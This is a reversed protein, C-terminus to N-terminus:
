RVTRAPRASVERSFEGIHRPSARDYAAIAFYYLTGNRLGDVLISTRNGIDLPSPGDTADEGFYEGAATGYYLLYGGLDPDPSARWKLEVSGDAAQAIVLSPPPPPDDREYVVRVEDLYPAREGDGSPYFDVALQVWRGRLSLGLPAGNAVPTWSEEEDKWGYPSDGARLFYRLEAGDSGPAGKAEIRLVRANTTGLDFFRTEARGGSAPFRATRPKEVFRRYLRFEDMFGSYGSGLSFYGGTGIVPNYVEGGERGTFTAYAVAELRGDVLYEMLGTRGDFRVLHHSWARPLITGHPSLTVSVRRGEGPASFFDAFTWELRNRAVLARIRQFVSEGSPTRRSSTWALVLEGSELNAPYLWFEISFDDVREGPSFLAAAHPTATIGSLGDSVPASTFLAAGAGFRASRPGAISVAASASTKWRGAADAFHAREEDFSLALDVDEEDTGRASSLTLAPFRRVGGMETVNFLRAVSGWGESGGIALVREEAHLAACAFIALAALAASVTEKRM